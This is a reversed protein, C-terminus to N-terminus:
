VWATIATHWAMRRKALAWPARCDLRAMESSPPVAIVQPDVTDNSPGWAQDISAEVLSRVLARLRQELM